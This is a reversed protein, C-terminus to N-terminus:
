GDPEKLIVSDEKRALQTNKQRKQICNRAPSVSMSLANVCIVLTFTQLIISLEDINWENAKLRLFPPRTLTLASAEKVALM